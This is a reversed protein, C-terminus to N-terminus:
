KSYKYSTSYSYTVKSKKKTKKNSKKNAGSFFNAVKVAGKAITRAPFTTIKKKKYQEEKEVAKIVADEYAKEAKYKAEQANKYNDYVKESKRDIKIGRKGAAKARSSTRKTDDSLMAEARDLNVKAQHYKYRAQTAANNAREANTM